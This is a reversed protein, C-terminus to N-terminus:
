DVSLTISVPAIASWGNASIQRARLVARDIQPKAGRWSQAHCRTLESPRAPAGVAEDCVDRVAVRVRNVLVKQGMSTALNLDRYSVMRKVLTGDIAPGTVVVPKPEKAVAPAAIALGALTVACAALLSITKESLM